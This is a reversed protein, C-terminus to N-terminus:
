KMELEMFAKIFEAAVQPVIANGYGKLRGCRNRRALRAMKTVVTADIGLGGLWSFMPRLSAPIGHALPQVSRGVRRSKKDTCNIIRHDDWAGSPVIAAAGAWKANRGSRGSHQSNAMGCAHVDSPESSRRHKGEESDRKKRRGRKPLKEIRGNGASYELGFVMGGSESGSESGQKKIAQRRHETDSIGCARGNQEDVSQEGTSPVRQVVHVDSHALRHVAGNIAPEDLALGRQPVYDARNGDVSSEKGTRAHRSEAANAVWYLRQRLHPAGASHAGLVVAGCAYGAGELDACIGDLWGHRIASAVQEGAWVDIGSQKVLNFMIPWLHREDSQAKQKGAASFPQCPCSGTGIPRDDPWGALRLALPWGGIGAFFHQQTFGVLDEPSLDAISRRDVVGNPILGEKILNELWDAAFPDFENYYAAM